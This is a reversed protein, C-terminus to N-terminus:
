QYSIFYYVYMKLVNNEIYFIQSQRDMCLDSGDNFNVKISGNM